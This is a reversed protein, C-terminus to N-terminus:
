TVRLLATVREQMLWLVVTHPWLRLFTASLGKYFARPGEVRATQLVCDLAGRYGLGLDSQANMVRTKVLDVPHTVVCAVSASAMACALQTQITEPAGASLALRKAEEYTAIQAGTILSARVVTPGCGRWLTALGEERRIRALGDLLHHYNRQQFPPRHGDAQMRILVVDTPNAVVAAFAGASVACALRAGSSTAGQAHRCHRELVGYLGHRLSSFTAQRMLSASFGAYLGNRVGEEFALRRGASAFDRMSISRKLADGEGTLQLRVKLVDAPHSFFVASM